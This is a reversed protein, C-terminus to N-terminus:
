TALQVLQPDFHTLTTGSGLLLQQAAKMVSATQEGFASSPAAESLAGAMRFTALLTALVHVLMPLQRTHQM